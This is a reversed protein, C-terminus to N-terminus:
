KVVYIIIFFCLCESRSVNVSAHGQVLLVSNIRQIRSLEHCRLFMIIGYILCIGPNKKEPYISSELLSLIIKNVIPCRTAMEKLVESMWGEDSMGDYLRQRLVSPESKRAVEILEQNAKVLDLFEGEKLHSFFLVNIFLGDTKFCRM